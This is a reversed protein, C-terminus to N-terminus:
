KVISKALVDWFGDLEEDVGDELAADLDLIASSTAAKTKPTRAIWDSDVYGTGTAKLRLYYTTGPELDSIAKMGASTFTKTSCNEFTPDTGYELVYKAANEVASFKISISNQTTVLTQIAPTALQGFLEATQAEFADSWGSDLRNEGDGFVM